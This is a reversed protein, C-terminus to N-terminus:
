RHPQLPRPRRPWLPLWARPPNTVLGTGAQGPRAATVETIVPQVLAVVPRLALVAPRVAQPPLIPAVFTKWFRYNM